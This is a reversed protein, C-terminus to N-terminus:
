IRTLQNGDKDIKYGEPNVRYYGMRGKKLSKRIATSSVNKAAAANAISDYLTGEIWVPTAFGPSRRQIPNIVGFRDNPNNSNQRRVKELQIENRTALRYSGSELKGVVATRHISLRESAETISLYTFGEAVIPKSFPDTIRSNGSMENRLREIEEYEPFSDLRIPINGRRSSDYDFTNYVIGGEAEYKQIFEAERNVRKEKSLWDTGYNVTLFEFSEEGYRFWDVQLVTNKSNYHRLNSKHRSIRGAIGRRQGTEGFYCANNVKCRICYVGPQSPHFGQAPIQLTECIGMNYSLSFSSLESQLKYEIFKRYMFDECSSGTEFLILEFNSIGYQRFEEFLTSNTIRNQTLDSLRNLVRHKINQTEGVFCKKTIKCCIAYIGPTNELNQANVESLLRKEGPIEKESTLLSNEMEYGRQAFEADRNPYCFCIVKSRSYNGKLKKEFFSPKLNSPPKGKLCTIRNLGSKYIVKNDQKENTVKSSPKKKKNFIFLIVLRMLNLNFM